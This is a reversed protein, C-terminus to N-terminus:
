RGRRMENRSMPMADVKVFLLKASFPKEASCGAPFSATPQNNTRLCRKTM